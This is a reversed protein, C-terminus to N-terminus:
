SYPFHLAENHHFHHVLIALSQIFIVASISAITIPTFVIADGEGGGAPTKNLIKERHYILADPIRSHSDTESPSVFSYSAADTTNLRFVTLV